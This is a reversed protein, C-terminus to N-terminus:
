AAINFLTNLVALITLTRDVSPIHCQLYTSILVVRLKARENENRMLQFLDADIIAYTNERLRKVSYPSTISELERGNNLYLCWFPEGQMHWFPTAVKPQFVVSVGVYRKWVQEFTQELQETLEIRNSTIVGREVLDIVSLLLVAKHPAPLGLKKATHLSTFQEIYKSQYEM